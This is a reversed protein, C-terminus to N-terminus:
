RACIPEMNAELSQTRRVSMMVRGCFAMVQIWDRSRTPHIIINPMVAQPKVSQPEEQSTFLECGDETLNKFDARRIIKGTLWNDEILNGKSQMGLQLDSSAMLLFGMIQRFGAFLSPWFLDMKMCVM